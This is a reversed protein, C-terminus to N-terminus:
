DIGDVGGWVCWLKHLDEFSKRRLEDASWARGVQSPNMSRYPQTLLRVHSGRLGSQWGKWGWLGGVLVAEHPARSPDVFEELGRRPMSAVAAAMPSGSAARSRATSLAMRGFSAVLSAM